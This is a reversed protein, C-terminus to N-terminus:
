PGGRGAEEAKWTVGLGSAGGAKSVERSAPLHDCLPVVEVTAERAREEERRVDGGRWEASSLLGLSEERTRVARPAGPQGHTFRCM